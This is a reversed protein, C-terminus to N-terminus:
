IYRGCATTVTTNKNFSVSKNISSTKRNKYSLKWHLMGESLIWMTKSFKCKLVSWSRVLLGYMCVDTNDWPECLEWCCQGQYLWTYTSESLIIVNVIYRGHSSDVQPFLICLDQGGHNTRHYLRTLILGEQRGAGHEASDKPCTCASRLSSTSCEVHRVFWEVHLPELCAANLVFSIQHQHFFINTPIM